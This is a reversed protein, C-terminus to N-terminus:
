PAPLPGSGKIRGRVQWLQYTATIADPDTASDIAIPCGGHFGAQKADDDTAVYRVYHGGSNACTGCVRLEESSRESRLLDWRGPCGTRDCLAIATRSVIRRWEVSGVQARPDRPPLNGAHRVFSAEDTRGRQELWDAYVLRAADDSPTARIAVLLDHETPDSSLVERAPTMPRPPFAFPAGGMRPAPPNAIM